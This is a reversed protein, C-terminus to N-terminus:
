DNNIKKYLIFGNEDSLIFYENNIMEFIQSHWDGIIQGIDNEAKFLVIVAPKVNLIDSIFEEKAGQIHNLGAGQYIYKSATDRKTFPYIYGNFGLSIIKDGPKTNNDILRGTNRLQTGTNDHFIKSLDYLYNVIGESFVFCSMAILLLYKRKFNNILIEAKKLLFATVPIFFPILVINYHSGGGSFSMFLIMLFCSFTYAIYFSLLQSNYNVIIMVLGFILPMYSFSRNIVSYYNQVIEKVNGNGFGRKVGGFIVQIFFDDFIGNLKLYLYVPLLVLLTGILFFFIYKGLQFFRHKIILEIIIILCFGAWLPFMNLRIMIASAFCIGLIILKVNKIDHKELIFYKIFIYLSIMLFPLSYEETGANVIGFGILAFFCFIVSLLAIKHEAFMIATKYAFIATIFLLILETIWIGTFKGLFYGPVSILYEFPGKNDAFDQYPFQGRVIGQTVTIYVSSDVHMRRFNFPNYVSSFAAAFAIAFLILYHLLAKSRIQM